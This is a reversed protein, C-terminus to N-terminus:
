EVGQFRHQVVRVKIKADPGNEQIAALARHRGDAGIVNGDQDVHLESPTSTGARIQERHYNVSDAHEGPTRGAGNLISGEDAGVKKLYGRAPVESTKELTAAGSGGSVPPAATTPSNSEWKDLYKGGNLKKTLEVGENGFTRNIVDNPSQTKPKVIDNLFDPTNLKGAKDVYNDIPQGFTKEFEAADPHAGGRGAWTSPDDGVFSGPAKMPTANDKPAAGSNDTPAARGKASEGAYETATTGDYSPFSPAPAKAVAKDLGYDRGPMKVSVGAAEDAPTFLKVTAKVPVLKQDLAAEATRAAFRVPATYVSKPIVQAGKIAGETAAGLIAQGAGQGATDQAVHLYTGAPDPSQNIDRIAGPVQMAGKVTDKISSGVRGVLRSLYADDPNEGAAVRPDVMQVAGKAADRTGRVVSQVGSWTADAHNDLAITKDLIGKPAPTDPGSTAELQSLSDGRHPTAATTTSGELASLSDGM